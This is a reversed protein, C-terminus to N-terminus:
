SATGQRRERYDGLSFVDPKSSALAASDVGTVSEFTTPKWSLAAAIERVGFGTKAHLVGLASELLEPKEIEPEEPEGRAWGEAYMHKRARRYTAADIIDLEYARQVITAVSACWRRKLELLYNWDLRGGTWFERRFATRPLLFASAFRDAQEETQPNGTRIGRHMVGHGLEHAMDFLALSGNERATVEIVSAAGFRSFADIDESELKLRSLVIGSREVLRGLDRVPADLSVGWSERCSEAAREIDDTTSM